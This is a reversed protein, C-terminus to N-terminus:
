ILFSFSSVLSIFFYCDYVFTVVYNFSRYSQEYKQKFKLVKAEGYPSYILITFIATQLSFKKTTSIVKINSYDNKTKITITCVTRFSNLLHNFIFLLMIFVGKTKYNVFGCCIMVLLLQKNRCM